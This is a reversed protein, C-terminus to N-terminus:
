GGGGEFHYRILGGLVGHYIKYWASSGSSNSAVDSGRAYSLLSTSRKEQLAKVLYYLRHHTLIVANYNIDVAIYNRDLL